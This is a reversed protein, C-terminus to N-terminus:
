AGKDLRNAFYGYFIDYLHICWLHQGNSINRLDQQFSLRPRDFSLVIVRPQVPKLTLNFHPMQYITATKHLNADAVFDVNIRVNKQGPALSLLTTLVRTEACDDQCWFLWKWSTPLPEATVVFIIDPESKYIAHKLILSNNAASQCSIRAFDLFWDCFCPLTQSSIRVATGSILRLVVPFNYNKVLIIDLFLVVSFTQGGSTAYYLKELGVKKRIHAEYFYEFSLVLLWKKLRCCEWQLKRM